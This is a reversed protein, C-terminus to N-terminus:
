NRSATEPTDFWFADMHYIGFNAGPDWGFLAEKPVNVLSDSVVIPQKAEAILGITLTQDVHTDLITRWAAERAEHTTAALWQDYADILTQAPPYDIKEGNKGESDRYAGWSMGLLFSSDSPVREAPSMGATPIGDDYGSAAMMVLTGALARNWIVDRDSPKVFLAVGIDAWNEGVLQLTDIVEQSQGDTEVVIQLPRGDPLLRIGDGRRQTLGISDLLKNAQTPDYTAWKTLYGPEFLRSESLVANNSPKALGFYLVRNIMERDIGLSLAHRFREDRLLTRWVTDKCTLNPYLTVENAKSIPWLRTSYHSREEGRKLVTIDAFSLGRAQLDTEGAQAQSPILGTSVVNMEVKDIYPLQQGKPDVRHFYPNRVMILRRDTGGESRIWPQLSPEAPNSGGYMDDYRNHLAAWSRVKKKAILAKIKDPKGYKEHFQKLYHAPRYIFPDTASALTTLFLPNPKKWTYRVTLPDLVEFTPPEGDVLLFPEPGTPAIDPNQQMDQWYYRFDEATFPKGDSWKHGPRIHFTFIRDEVVDVSELIDPHLKLDPGYAVLRAYGWVNILRADKARSILTRLTGGPRGIRYGLADFDVVLPDKPLREALPPLPAPEDAAPAPTAAAPAPASAAPAPTAAPDPTAAIAPAAAAVLVALAYRVLRM